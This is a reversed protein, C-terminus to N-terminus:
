FQIETLFSFYDAGRKDLGGTNTLGNDFIFGGDHVARGPFLHSYGLELAVDDTYQYVIALNYIWGLDRGSEQTWNPLISCWPYIGNRNRFSVPHDFPAVVQLYAADTTVTIKDLPQIQVGAQAQWYNSLSSGDFFADNEYDSFLRNFSVSAEPSYFPNLMDFFSIDRNDEGGFYHFALYPRPFWKTEFTYGLEGHAGWSNWRANQDGYSLMQPVYLAGLSDANGFQYAAEVEWDWNRYEGANRLGVTHLNTPDYDDLGLRDELWQGSWDWTVNEVKGADRLYFWYAETVINETWSYAINVGHLDIDGDEEVPGREALKASFLDITFPEPSVTLRIGDFTLGTFPLPVPNAGILWGSGFSLEQRGIRLSLPQGAIEAADIYAQYLSVRDNAASDAGTIYESRFSEGWTFASDVEIFASVNRTFTAGTHLRM